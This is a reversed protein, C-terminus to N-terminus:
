AAVATNTKPTSRKLILATIVSVILGVPLIEMYTFLATFLPNKYLKSQEAYEATKERIEAASAGGERMKQLSHNVFKEMFDPVFFFYDILWVIVYITSAVLAIYLGIKFAKGFTIVGGNYKDRYTKVAVFILSFALLMSAYGLVISGEFQATKYCVSISAVTWASVIAGAILGNTLIIKKM